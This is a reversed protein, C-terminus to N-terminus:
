TSRRATGTSNAITTGRRVEHGIQVQGDAPREGLSGPCDGRRRARAGTPLLPRRSAPPVHQFHNSRQRRRSIGAGQARRRGEGRQGRLLSAQRRTPPPGDGRVNGAPLLNRDFPLATACSRADRGRPEQPLSGVFPALNAYTYLAADQRPFRRGIKTAVIPRSKDPRREKLVRAILRESTHDGYVDATDLFDVGRDLAEHLAAISDREDVSGWASGIAWSGFGIEAVQWGTKGFPRTRM